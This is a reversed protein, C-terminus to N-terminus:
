DDEDLSSFLNHFELAVDCTSSSTDIDEAIAILRADNQRFYIILNWLGMDCHSVCGMSSVIVNKIQKNKVEALIKDLNETSLNKDLYVPIDNINEVDDFTKSIYQRCRIEQTHISDLNTSYESGRLYIVTKQETSM